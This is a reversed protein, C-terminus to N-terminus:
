VTEIPPAIGVAPGEGATGEVASAPDLDAAMIAWMSPAGDPDGDVYFAVGVAIAPVMAGVQEATDPTTGQVQVLKIKGTFEITRM